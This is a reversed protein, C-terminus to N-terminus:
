TQSLKENSIKPCKMHGENMNEGVNQVINWNQKNLTLTLKNLETRYINLTKKHPFNIKVIEFSHSVYVMLTVAMAIKGQTKINSLKMIEM